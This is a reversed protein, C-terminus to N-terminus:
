SRQSLCIKQSIATITLVIGPGPKGACYYQLYYERSTLCRMANLGFWFEKYLDGFGDAYETWARYFSTSYQKDRRLVVLWGGGGGSTTDCYAKTNSCNVGCFNGIITYVGSSKTNFYTNNYGLCCCTKIPLGKIKCEGDGYVVAIGITSILVILLMSNTM